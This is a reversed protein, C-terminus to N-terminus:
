ITIVKGKSNEFYNTKKLCNLLFIAMVTREFFDNRQRQDEHRVLHYASLYDSSKYKRNNIGPKEELKNKIELFFALPKQTIMRLAMLVM